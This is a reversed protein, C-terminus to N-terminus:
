KWHFASDLGLQGGVKQATHIVLIQLSLCQVVSPQLTGEFDELNKEKLRTHTLDMWARQSKGGGKHM